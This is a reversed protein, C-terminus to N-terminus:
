FVLPISGQVNNITKANSDLNTLSLEGTTSDISALVAGDDTLVVGSVNTYLEIGSFTYVVTSSNGNLHLSGQIDFYLVGLKGRKEYTLKGATWTSVPLLYSYTVETENFASLDDIDGNITTIDNEINEIDDEATDLRTDLDDVDSSIGGVSSDLNTIADSNAQIVTTHGNVTSTLTSINTTNTSVTNSLTGLSTNITGISETNTQVTSTLSTLAANVTNNQIPNTSSSSLSSDTTVSLVGDSISLKSGVKIGGLTDSTAVPLRYGAPNANLTGDEEISLNEGVKIGGLETASAIPLHYNRIATEINVNPIDRHINIETM